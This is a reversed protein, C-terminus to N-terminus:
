FETLVEGDIALRYRSPLTCSAGNFVRFTYTGPPLSFFSTRWSYYINDAVIPTAGNDAVYHFRKVVTNSANYVFVEYSVIHEKSACEREVDVCIRVQTNTDISCGSGSAPEFYSNYTRM